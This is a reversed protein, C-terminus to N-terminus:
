ISLLWSAGVSLLAYYALAAGLLVKMGTQVHNM